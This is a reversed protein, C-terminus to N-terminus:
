LSIALYTAKQQETWHNLESLLKFQTLHTEWSSKGDYTRQAVGVEKLDEELQLVRFSSHLHLPDSTPQLQPQQQELISLRRSPLMLRPRWDQWNTIGTKLEERESVLIKGLRDEAAGLRDQLVYTTSSMNKELSAVTEVTESQTRTLLEIRKEHDDALRIM